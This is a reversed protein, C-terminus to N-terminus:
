IAELLFEEFAAEADMGKSRAEPLLTSIRGALEKLEEESFKSFNRKLLMDKAKWFLIGVLPELEMGEEMARCFNIWLLLKNREGLANALIFGNFKEGNGSGNDGGTGYRGKVKEIEFINMKAGANKFADSTTKALKGELFVFTSDSSALKDLNKLLFDAAESKEFIDNFVVACKKFFLGAGSYFSEVQERDFDSGGIFFIETHEPLAIMFKDYAVRKKDTDNGSFIHIM